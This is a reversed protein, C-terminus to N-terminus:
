HTGDKLSWELRDLRDREASDTGFHDREEQAVGWFSTPRISDFALVNVM